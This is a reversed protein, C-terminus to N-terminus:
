IERKRNQTTSLDQVQKRTKHVWILSLINFVMESCTCIFDFAPNFWSWIKGWAYRTDWNWTYYDPFFIFFPGPPYLINGYFCPIGCLMWSGVHLSVMVKRRFPFFINACQLAM